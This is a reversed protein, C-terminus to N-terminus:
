EKAYSLRLVNLCNITGVEYGEPQHRGRTAIMVKPAAFSFGGDAEVKQGDLEADIDRVVGGEQKWRIKMTRPGAGASDIQLNGAARGNVRLLSPTDARARYALSICQRLPKKDDVAPLEALGIVLMTEATLAPPRNEPDQALRLTNEDPASFEFVVEYTGDASDLEWAPVATLWEKRPFLRCLVGETAIFHTQAQWGEGSLAYAAPALPGSQRVEKGVHFDGRSEVTRPLLQGFADEFLTQQAGASSVALALLPLFLFRVKM